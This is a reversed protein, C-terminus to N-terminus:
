DPLAVGISQAEEPTLGAGRIKLLAAQQIEDPTRFSSRVKEGLLYMSGEFLVVYGGHSEVVGERITGAAKHALTSTDFRGMDDFEAENAHTASHVDYTIDEKVIANFLTPREGNVLGALDDFYNAIEGLGAGNAYDEALAYIREARAHDTMSYAAIMDAKFRDTVKACEARYATWADRKRTNEPPTPLAYEGRQIKDHIENM